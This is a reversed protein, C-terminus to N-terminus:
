NLVSQAAAPNTRILNRLPDISELAIVSNQIMNEVGLIEYEISESRSLIKATSSNSQVAIRVKDGFNLNVDSIYLRGSNIYEVNEVLKKNIEVKCSQTLNRGYIYYENTGVAEIKEITPQWVGLQIKTAEYPNEKDYIYKKGYLMDYQLTQLDTQYQELEQCQQHFSFVTGEHIGVKDFVEAMVQYAALDKEERELGMNDWIVYQTTFLDFNEMDSETLGMTPLHDGYLLLVTDEGRKELMEVLQRIFEDMEHIQNVYYEWMNKSKESPAGTVTITQDPDIQEEPYAGHGQVSVTFVFDQGETDDLSAEIYKVLNEDRMWGLANIDDQTDMYESSTFVDFGIKSYVTRRSYFNAENNHIAYTGYGLSSLVNAASECTNKKIVGKYPYEGAGFYRMSMGTLTEFETNATGAGVSPVRFFGSSYNEMLSRFYPIPDESCELYRVMEPDFFSELQIAVINPLNSTDTTETNSKEEISELLEESYGNPKDVGTDFITVSLCYPYGYDEYATAINGFYTSLIRTSIAAKTTLAFLCICGLIGIIYRKYHMPGKYKPAKIFALGVFLIIMVALISAVIALSPSLFKNFIGLGEKLLKLDPGTFPTVRNSLLVGNIIGLFLWFVSIFLRAFIRRRILYIPLTTLFILFVNYLYVRTRNDLFGLAEMASHRSIAEIIFYGIFCAVAHLLLSWRNCVTILQEKNINIKKM